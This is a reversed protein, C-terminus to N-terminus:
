PAKSRAFLGFIWKITLFGAIGQFITLLAKGFFLVLPGANPLWNVIIINGFHWSGVIFLIVGIIAMFFGRLCDYLGGGDIEDSFTLIGKRMLLLGVVFLLYYM